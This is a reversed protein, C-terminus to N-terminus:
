RTYNNKALTIIENGTKNKRHSVYSLLKMRSKINQELLKLLEIVTNDREDKFESLKQVKEQMTEIKLELLDLRKEMTQLQINPVGIGSPESETLDPATQEHIDIGSFIGSEHREKIVNEIVNKNIIKQGDAYGYVLATDCIM